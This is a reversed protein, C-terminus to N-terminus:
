WVEVVDSDDFRVIRVFKYINGAESRREEIQLSMDDSNKAVARVDKHVHVDTKTNNDWARFWETSVVGDKKSPRWKLESVGLNAKIQEINM